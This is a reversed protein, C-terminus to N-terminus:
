DEGAIFDTTDRIADRKVAALLDLLAAESPGGGVNALARAKEAEAYTLGADDRKVLDAVCWSKSGDYHMVCVMPKVSYAVVHGIRDGYPGATVAACDELAKELEHERM